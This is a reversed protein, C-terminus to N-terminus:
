DVAGRMVDAVIRRRFFPMDEQSFRFPVDKSCFDGYTIAFVGCDSGNKQHPIDRAFLRRWERTDLEVGSKEKAEDEIFRSLLEFVESDVGGMSDYYEFQQDRLNIVALTWHAPLHIPVVIKDCELLCQYDAGKQLLRKPTTWRAVGKYSYGNSGLKHYFFTNFFFCKPGKDQAKRRTDREQLLAIYFNIVEDNLWQGPKMCEFDGRTVELNTKQHAALVEGPPGGGLARQVLATESENLSRKTWEEAPAVEVKRKDTELKAKKKKETERQKRLEEEKAELAVIDKKRMSELTRANPAVIRSFKAVLADIRRETATKRGQKGTTNPEMRGAGLFPTSM